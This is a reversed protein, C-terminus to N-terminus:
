QRIKRQVKTVVFAAPVVCMLGTLAWQLLYAQVGPLAPNTWFDLSYASAGASYFISFVVAIAAASFAGGYAAGSSPQKKWALQRRCTITTLIATLAVALGFYIINFTM